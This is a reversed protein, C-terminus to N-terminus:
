EVNDKKKLKGMKAHKHLPMYSYEANQNQLQSYHIRNIIVIRSFSQKVQATTREITSKVETAIGVTHLNGPFYLHISSRATFPSLNKFFSLNKLNIKYDKTLLISMYFHFLVKLILWYIINLFFRKFM